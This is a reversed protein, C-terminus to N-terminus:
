KNFHNQYFSTSRQIALPWSGNQFNHNEGPYTYYTIDLHHKKLEGILNDSWKLPVSEDDIGQHLEIPANIWDLFNTTSYKEVDYNKEFGALVKRLAKGKDDFEDTYYLISYPFPKSVPAWLVTPYNKGTIELVSLSIHGGNSHGWIGVKESDVQVNNNVITELGKNLNKVSNLLTIATTYTQFRDEFPRSSEKDSEGFGLFDPALTIFGASSLAEASNRTGEGTTFKEKDIYGRFMVIVPYTGTKTPLNMLGSVRGQRPLGKEGETNFYFIYSTFTDTEKLVKGIKIESGKFERKRLAEFTYKDLPKEVPKGALPSILERSEKQFFFFALVGLVVLASFILPLVKKM